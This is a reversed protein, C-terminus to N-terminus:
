IGKNNKLIVNEITDLLENKSPPKNLFGSAGLEMCLEKTAEQIDASIVIITMNLNRSKLNRLVEFGDVEPMLLDLLLIDFNEIEIVELAEKGSVAETIKFGTEKLLMKLKKRAILSDDTILISKEDFQAM